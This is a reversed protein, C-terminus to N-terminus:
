NEEYVPRTVPKGQNDITAKYGTIEHVQGDPTTIVSPTLEFHISKPSYDYASGSLFDIPWTIIGFDWLLDAWLWNNLTRKMKITQPKYGDLEATINYQGKRKVHITNPTRISDGNTVTIKAGSPSSTVPIDQDPGTMIRCCGSCNLILCVAILVLKKM